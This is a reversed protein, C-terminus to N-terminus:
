FGCLVNIAVILLDTINYDATTCVLTAAHTDYDTSTADATEPFGIATFTVYCL